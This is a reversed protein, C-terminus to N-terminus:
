KFLVSNLVNGKKVIRITANEVVIQAKNSALHGFGYSYTTSDAIEFKGIVTLEANKKWYEKYLRGLKKKIFFAKIPTTNLNKFELHVNHNLECDYFGSASWYEEIGSYIVKTKIVEGNHKELECFQVEAIESSKLTACSQTIIGVLIIIVINKM